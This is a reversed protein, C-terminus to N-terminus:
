CRCSRVEGSPRCPPSGERGCASGPRAAPQQYSSGYQGGASPHPLGAVDPEIGSPPEHGVPVERLRLLEETPEVHNPAVRLVFGDLPGLLDREAFVAGDFNPLDPWAPHAPLSAPAPR